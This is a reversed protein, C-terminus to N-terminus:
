SGSGQSDLREKGVRWGKCPVRQESNHPALLYSLGAGVELACRDAYCAISRGCEPCKARLAPGRRGRGRSM